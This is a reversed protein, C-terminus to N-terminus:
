INVLSCPKKAWLANPRITINMAMISEFSVFSFPDLKLSFVRFRRYVYRDVLSYPTLDRLEKIDINLSM